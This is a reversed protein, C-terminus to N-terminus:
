DASFRGSFKNYLRAGWPIFNIGNVWKQWDSVRAIM